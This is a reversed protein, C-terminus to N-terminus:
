TLTQNCADCGWHVGYRAGDPDWDHIYARTSSGYMRNTRYGSNWELAVSLRGTCNGGAKQTQAWYENGDYGSSVYNQGCSRSVTRNNGLAMAPSAPAVTLVAAGALVVAGLRALARGHDLM